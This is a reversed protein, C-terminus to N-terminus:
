TQKAWPAPPRQRFEWDDPPWNTYLEPPAVLNFDDPEYRLFVGLLYRRGDTGFGGGAIAGELGIDRGTETMKSILPGQLVAATDKPVYGIEHGGIYVSIANRDYPNETDPKLLATTAHFISQETQAGVAAWLHAQRQDYSEGVAMLLAEGESILITKGQHLRPVFPM